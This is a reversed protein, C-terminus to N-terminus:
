PATTGTVTPITTTTTATPSKPAVKKATTSTVHTPQTTPAHKSISDGINIVPVTTTPEPVKATIGAVDIQSPPTTAAVTTPVDAVAVTRRTTVSTTAPVSKHTRVVPEPAPPPSTNKADAACGVGAVIALGALLGATPGIVRRRLLESHLARAERFTCNLLEAIRSEVDEATQGTSTSLAAVDEARLAIPEGPKIHRLKAVIEIYASLLEDADNTQLTVEEPGVVIRNTDLQIPTRPAFQANFDDGYCEALAAILSPAAPADGRECQRLESATAGIRSAVSRRTLSQQKRACRLLMGLRAPALDDLPLAAVGKQPPEVPNM